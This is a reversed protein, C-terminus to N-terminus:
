AWISETLAFNIQSKGKFLLFMLNTETFLGAKGCTMRLELCTEKLIM